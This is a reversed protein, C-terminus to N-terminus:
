PDRSLNNIQLVAALCSAVDAEDSARCVELAELGMLELYGPSLQLVDPNVSREIAAWESPAAAGRRMMRLGEDVPLARLAAFRGLYYERADDRERGRLGLADMLLELLSTREVRGLQRGKPMIGYAVQDAMRILLERPLADGLLTRAKGFDEGLSRFEAQDDHCDGCQEELALVLASSLTVEGDAAAAASADVEAEASAAIPSDAESGLARLAYRELAAAFAAGFSHEAAFAAEVAERDEASAERGLVYSIARDSMCESYEPQAMALEAFSAPLLRASGRLDRINDSYLEGEGAKFADPVVHIGARSDPYGMWFQFGYDLRAHCNTCLDKHALAKWSDHVFALNGTHNLAFIEETRAGFASSTGCWLVEFIARQRQRRDPMATLFQPSTLLGAHEGEVAAPRARWEGAADSHAVDELSARHVAGALRRRYLYDVDGGYVTEEGSFALDIPLDSKIIHAVTDVIEARASAHLGLYSEEDPLCRFLNPGCGCVSSREKEPSGVQSDCSIPMTTQYSHKDAAVTWVEPRYSDPCVLIPQVPHWWPLVSVAESALCPERLFHVYEGRSKARKLTYLAPVLYYNRTNVYVGFLLSPAIQAAFESSAALEAVFAARAAPDGVVDGLQALASASLPSGALRNLSAAIDSASPKTPEAAAEETKKCAGAGLLAVLLAVLASKM